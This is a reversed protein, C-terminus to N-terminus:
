FPFIDNPFLSLIFFRTINFRPRVGAILRVEVGGLVYGPRKAHFLTLDDLVVFM